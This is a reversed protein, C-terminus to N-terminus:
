IAKVLAPLENMHAAVTLAGAEHLRRNML